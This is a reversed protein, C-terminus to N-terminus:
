KRTTTLLFTPFCGGCAAWSLRSDRVLAIGGVTLPQCLTSTVMSLPDSFEQPSSLGAQQVLYTSRPPRDAMPVYTLIPAGSSHRSVDILNQKHIVRWVGHADSIGPFDDQASAKIVKQTTLQSSKPVDQHLPELRNFRGKCVPPRHGSM